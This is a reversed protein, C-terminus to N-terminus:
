RGRASAPVEVGVRHFTWGIPNTNRVFGRISPSEPLAAFRVSVETGVPPAEGSFYCFGNESIDQAIAETVRRDSPSGWVVTICVPRQNRISRRRNAVVPTQVQRSLARLVSQFTGGDNKAMGLEVGGWCSETLMGHGIIRSGTAASMLRLVGESLEAFGQPGALVVSRVVGM